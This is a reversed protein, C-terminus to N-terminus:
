VNQWLLSLIHSFMIEELHYLDFMSTALETFSFWHQKKGEIKFNKIHNVVLSVLEEVKM